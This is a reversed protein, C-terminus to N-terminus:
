HPMEVSVKFFNYDSEQGPSIEVWTEEADLRHRGWVRYLRRNRGSDRNLDPKWDVYVMGDVIEISATLVDDPNEPDTGAVFEDLLTTGKGPVVAKMAAVYDAATPTSPVYPAMFAAFDPDRAAPEDRLAAM